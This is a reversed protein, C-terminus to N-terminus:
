ILSTVGGSLDDGSCKRNRMKLLPRLAADLASPLPTPRAATFAIASVQPPSTQTSDSTPLPLM